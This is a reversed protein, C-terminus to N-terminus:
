IICLEDRRCESRFKELVGVLEVADLETVLYSYSFM